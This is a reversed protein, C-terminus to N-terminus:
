TPVDPLNMLVSTFWKSAYQRVRDSKALLAGMVPFGEPGIGVYEYDGGEYGKNSYIDEFWAMNDIQAVYHPKSWVHLWLKSDKLVASGINSANGWVPTIFMSYFLENQMRSLVNADESLIQDFVLQGQRGSASVKDSIYAINSILLSDSFNYKESKRYKMPFKKALAAKLGYLADTKKEFSTTPDLTSFKTLDFGIVQRIKDLYKLDDLVAEYTLDVDTPYAQLKCYYLINSADTEGATLAYSLRDYTPDHWSCRELLMSFHPEFTLNGAFGDHLLRAYEPGIDESLRRLQQIALPSLWLSANGFVKYAYRFSLLTNGDNIIDATVINRLMQGCYNVMRGFARERAKTPETGLPRSDLPSSGFNYVQREYDGIYSRLDFLDTVFSWNSMAQRAYNTGTLCAAIANQKDANTWTGTSALLDRAASLIDNLRNFVRSFPGTSQPQAYTVTPNLANIAATLGNIATFDLERSASEMTLLLDELLQRFIAVTSADGSFHKSLDQLAAPTKTLDSFTKSPSHTLLDVSGIVEQSVDDLLGDILGAATLDLKTFPPVSLQTPQLQTSSAPKGNFPSQEGLLYLGLLATGGLSSSLAIKLFKRRDLPM